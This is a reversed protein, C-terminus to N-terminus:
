QISKKTKAVLAVSVGAIAAIKKATFQKDELLRKIMTVQQEMRGEERAAEIKMEKVQEYLKDVFRTDSKKEPEPYMESLEKDLFDLKKKMNFVLDAKPFFFRLFDDFVEELIGKWM